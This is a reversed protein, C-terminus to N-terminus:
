RLVYEIGPSGFGDDVVKIPGGFCSYPDRNIRSDRLVAARRVNPLGKQVNAGVDQFRPGLFWHESAADTLKTNRSLEDSLAIEAALLESRLSKWSELEGAFSNVACAVQDAHQM